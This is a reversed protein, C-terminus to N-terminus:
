RPPCPLLCRLMALTEVLILSLTWQWRQWTNHPQHLLQPLQLTTLWSSALVLMLWTQFRHRCHYLIWRHSHVILPTQSALYLPIGDNKILCNIAPLTMTKYLTMHPIITSWRGSHIQWQVLSDMFHSLNLLIICMLQRTSLPKTLLIDKGTSRIRRNTMTGNRCGILYSAALLRLACHQAVVLPLNMTRSAVNNTNRRVQRLSFFRVFHIFHCFWRQVKALYIYFMDSDSVWKFENTYLGGPHCM